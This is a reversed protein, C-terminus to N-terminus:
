PAMQECSKTRRRFAFPKSRMWTSGRLGANALWGGMWGRVDTTEKMNVLVM